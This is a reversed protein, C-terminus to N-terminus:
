SPVVGAFHNKYGRLFPRSATRRDGKILATLTRTLGKSTTFDTAAPTQASSPWRANLLPRHVSSMTPLSGSLRFFKRFASKEILHERRLDALHARKEDNTLHSGIGGVMVLVLTRDDMDMWYSRRVLKNAADRIFPSDPDVSLDPEYHNV